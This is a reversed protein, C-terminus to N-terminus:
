VSRSETSIYFYISCLAAHSCGCQWVSFISGKNDSNQLFFCKYQGWIGFGGGIHPLLPKTHHLHHWFIRISVSLSLVQFTSLSCFIGADSLPSLPVLLVPPCLFPTLVNTWRLYLDKTKIKSIKFMSFLILCLIQKYSWIYNVYVLNVVWFWLVCFFLLGYEFLLSLSRLKIWKKLKVGCVSM